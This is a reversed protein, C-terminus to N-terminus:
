LRDPGCRIPDPGLRGRWPLLKVKWAPQRKGTEQGAM